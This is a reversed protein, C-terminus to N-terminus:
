WTPRTCSGRSGSSPVSSRVSDATYRGLGSATQAEAPPVVGALAVALWICAALPLLVRDAPVVTRIGLVRM